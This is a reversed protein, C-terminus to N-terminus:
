MARHRRMMRGHHMPMMRGHHHMGMMRVPKHRLQATEQHASANEASASSSVSLTLPLAFATCVSLTCAALTLRNRTM